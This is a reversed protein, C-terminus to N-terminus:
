QLETNKITEKTPNGRHVYLSIERASTKRRKILGYM